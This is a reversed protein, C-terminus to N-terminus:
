NLAVNVNIMSFYKSLKYEHLFYKNDIQLTERLAARGYEESISVM